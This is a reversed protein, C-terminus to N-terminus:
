PSSLLLHTATDIQTLMEEDQTHQLSLNSPDSIGGTPLEETSALLSQM